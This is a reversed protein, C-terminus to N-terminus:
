AGQRRVIRWLREVLGAAQTPPVNTVGLLLGGRRGKADAYWPSLPTPALDDEFAARAVAVDDVGAPLCALIALGGADHGVGLATLAAGLADRREAYARKMRRLHRLYHGDRMYAELAMQVSPTPAPDLTGVVETVAGILDHPVVLYGVRLGPAMTKSFTGIHVV